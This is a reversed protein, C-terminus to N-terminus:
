QVKVPFTVEFDVDGGPDAANKDAPEHHLLIKVTGNAATGTTWTSELGFPDGNDDTNLNSILLGATASQFVFLHEVNEEEIEETIDEVPDKTDDYVHLHCNFAGNVPIAIEDITNFVGDGDSDEAEFEMDFSTGIGIGTLHVVVRTIVEQQTGKNDKKCGSIFLTIGAAAILLLTPLHLKSYYM